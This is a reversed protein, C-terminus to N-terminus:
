SHKLSDAGNIHWVMNGRPQGVNTAGFGGRGSGGSEAYLRRGSYDNELYYCQSTGDSCTAQRVRWKQDAYVRGDSAGVGDDGDKDAQAFLRRNSLYNVILYCRDTKKSYCAVSKFGWNGDYGAAQVMDPTDAGVGYEYSGGLSAYVQRSSEDNTLDTSAKPVLWQSDLFDQIATECGGDGVLFEDTLTGFDTQNLHGQQVMLQYFSSLDDNTAGPCDVFDVEAYTIMFDFGYSAYWRYGTWMKVLDVTTCDARSVTPMQEVCACMPAGPINKVYGRDMLHDKMSVFMLVDGKFLSTPHNDDSSWAFGHCHVEDEANNEFLAFGASVRNSTPSRSMDVYCVDTNDMPNADTCNADYRVECDGNDDEAQRDQVWCCNVANLECNNFNKIEPWRIGSNYRAQSWYATSIRSNPMAWSHYKTMENIDKTERMDNWDTGGDFFAKDWVNTNEGSIAPFPTYEDMYKNNLATRCARWVEDRAQQETSVGLQLRLETHM